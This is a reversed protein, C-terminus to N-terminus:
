EFLRLESKDAWFEQEIELNTKGEIVYDNFRIIILCKEGDSSTQVVEATARSVVGKEIKKYLVINGPKLKLVQKAELGFDLGDGLKIGM